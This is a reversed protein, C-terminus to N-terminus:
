GAWATSMLAHIQWSPRRKKPHNTRLRHRCPRVTLETVGASSIETRMLLLFFRSLHCFHAHTHTHSRRCCAQRGSSSCHCCTFIKLAAVVPAQYQQWVSFISCTDPPLKHPRPCFSRGWSTRTRDRDRVGVPASVTKMKDRQTDGSYHSVHAAHSWPARRCTSLHWLQQSRM